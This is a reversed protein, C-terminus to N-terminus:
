RQKTGHAIGTITGADPLKLEPTFLIVYEAQSARHVKKEVRVLQLPVNDFTALVQGSKKELRTVHFTISDPIKIASILDSIGKNNVPVSISGPSSSTYDFKFTTFSDTAPASTHIYTPVNSPQGRSMSSNQSMSPQGRSMSPQGRSMSPQGRLMNPQGRSMSSNHPMSPQGRSMSSNQSMSPQGRSMSSNQSMSPQGRSMTNVLQGRSMTNVLQGRSMVDEEAYFEAYAHKLM